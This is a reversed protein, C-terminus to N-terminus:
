IEIKRGGRNIELKNNDEIFRVYKDYTAIDMDEVIKAQREAPLEILKSFSTKGDKFDSATYEEAGRQPAQRASEPSKRTEFISKLADRNKFVVFDLSKDLFERSTAIKEVEKKAEALQEPTANPFHQKLEPTALSDFEDSFAKEAKIQRAEEIERELAPDIGKKEDGGLIGVLERVSDETVGHKEAYQKIKDTKDDGHSQNISELSQLKTELAQKEERWQRKEDTYQKVPIYKEPRKPTDQPEGQPESGQEEPKQEEPKQEEPKQEPAEEPKEGESEEEPKQEPEDGLGPTDKQVAEWEPDTGEEPKEDGETTNPQNEDM